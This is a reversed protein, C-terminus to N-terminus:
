NLPVPFSGWLFTHGRIFSLIWGIHVTIGALDSGARGMTKMICIDRLFFLVNLEESWVMFANESEENMSYCPPFSYKGLACPCLTKNGEKCSPTLSTDKRSSGNQYLRKNCHAEGPPKTTFFGGAFAPTMPFLTQDRPRASWRSSSLVCELIRAQFIGHVSSNPPSCGCVCSLVCVHM